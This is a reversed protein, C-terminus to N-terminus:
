KDAEVYYVEFTAPLKHNHDRYADYFKQLQRFKNKGLLGQHRGVCLNHTGLMKFELMLEYISNFTRCFSHKKFQVNKFGAGKIALLLQEQSVFNSVHQYNDVKSWSSQLEKLSGAGVMSLFLCGGPKLVRAWEALTIEIDPSWQLMLNSFILDIYKDVIPLRDADACLFSLNREAGFYKRAYNIMQDAIDIGMVKAEPFMSALNATLWGTGCGLDVVTRPSEILDLWGFIKEGVELQLFSAQNYSAAARNFSRAIQTKDFLDQM